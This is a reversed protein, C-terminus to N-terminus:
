KDIPFNPLLVLIGPLLVIQIANTLGSFFLLSVGYAVLLALLLGPNKSKLMMKVVVMMMVIFLSIGVLGTELLLSAYENQVIERPAPSLGNNYLAQGAGGIGVGVMMTSFDQRWVTLAANFLRVRTDTSEPVYGNFIPQSTAGESNEVVLNEVNEKKGETIEFNEVPENGQVEGELTEGGRIDILGLSLHNLVKAVGDQYTDSTPSIASFIGQLNLTFAFSVVFVGFGKLISFCVRKKDVKKARFYMFAFLFCLGVVCAYIAGRSFTLFLTAALISFLFLCRKNNKTLYFYVSVFVPALLLNGIFQPEIAFGNPHPFGFM